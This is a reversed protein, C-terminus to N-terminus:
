DAYRLTYLMNRMENRRAPFHNSDTELTWVHVAGERVLIFVLVTYSQGGGPFDSRFTAEHAERHGVKFSSEETLSVATGTPADMRIDELYFQLVMKRTEAEKFAQYNEGKHFLVDIRIATITSTTLSTPNNNLDQMDRLHFLAADRSSVEPLFAAFFRRLNDNESSESALKLQNYNGGFWDSYVSMKWSLRRGEATWEATALQTNLIILFLACGVISIVKRLSQKQLRFYKQKIIM